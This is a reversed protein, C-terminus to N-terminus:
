LNHWAEQRVLNDLDSPGPRWMTGTILLRILGTLLLSLTSPEPV